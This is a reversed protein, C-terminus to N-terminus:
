PTPSPSPVLNSSLILGSYAPVTVISSISDGTAANTFGSGVSVSYSTATPNVLVIGNSFDRSYVHTGSVIGYSGIPTGINIQFLGQSYSDNTGMFMYNGSYQVAMLLSAYCYTEYQELSVGSLSGYEPDGACCIPLFIGHNDSALVNSQVWVAMNISDVWESETLWSSSAFNYPYGLWGESIFGDVGSEAVFAQLTSPDFSSSEGNYIGNALVTVNPGLVNKVESIFGVYANFVDNDTWALGTRPNIATQNTAYFVNLDWFVNDLQVGALNNADVYSELWNAYWAWVAPNGFDVYYAWGANITATPGESTVYNGNADKLLWGNTEFTAFSGNPDCEQQTPYTGAFRSMTNCYLFLKLNPNLDRAAVGESVVDDWHGIWLDFDNAVQSATLSDDEYDMRGILRGSTLLQSNNGQNYRSNNSYGNPENICTVNAGVCIGRQDQCLMSVLLPDNSPDTQTTFSITYTGNGFDTISPSDVQVWNITLLSGYYEFYFTFNQALAPAAENLVNVTLNVQTLNSNLQFYNGSLDVASTVNVNYASDSTTSSGSSNFVFSVYASSIGQGNAGWSIWIGNQYPAVDLPTYDMQLMAQYSDSNIAANLENLDTTLVSPDGGNTVNALASIMTNITSQKYSPLINKEDTGVTPVEKETEIIYISTSLLLSAVLLATIIIVQGSSNQKLNRKKM